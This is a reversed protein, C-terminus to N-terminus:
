PFLLCSIEGACLASKKAAILRITEIPSLISSAHRMAGNLVVRITNEESSSFSVVVM